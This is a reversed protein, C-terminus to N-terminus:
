SRLLQVYTATGVGYIEVNDYGSRLLRRDTQSGVKGDHGIRRISLDGTQKKLSLLFTGSGVQYPISTTWGPSWTQSQVSGGITGDAELKRISVDGSGTKLMHLYTHGLVSYPRMISWGSSFTRTERASAVPGDWAIEYIRVDGANSNSFLMFNATGIKYSAADTWGAKLKGDFVKEGITGDAKIRNVHYDGTGRKYLMLYQSGFVEYPVAQTWGSTWDKRQLREGVSGDLNIRRVQMSGDSSNLFFMFEHAGVTFASSIAWDTDWLDQEVVTELQGHHTLQYVHRKGANLFAATRVDQVSLRARQGILNQNAPDVTTIIAEGHESMNESSGYHMISRLDYPTPTLCTGPEVMRFQYRTGDDPKVKQMNVDIFQGRDRRKHEHQFGLAHGIEHALQGIHVTPDVKITQEGGAMGVASSSCIGDFPVADPLFRVYRDQITRVTFRVDTNSTWWAMGDEIIKLEDTDLLPDLSYVMCNGPWRTRINTPVLGM